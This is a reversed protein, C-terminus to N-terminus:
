RKGSKGGALYIIVGVLFLFVFTETQHTIIYQRAAELAPVSAARTAVALAYGGGVGVLLLLLDRWARPM